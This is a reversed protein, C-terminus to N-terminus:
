KEEEILPPTLYGVTLAAVKLFPNSGVPMREFRLQLRFLTGPDSYGEQRAKEILARTEQLWESYTQEPDKPEDEEQLHRWTLRVWLVTVLVLGM